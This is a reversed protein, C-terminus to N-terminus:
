SCANIKQCISQSAFWSLFILRETNIVLFIRKLLLYEVTCLTQANFNPNRSVLLSAISGYGNSFLPLCSCLKFIKIFYAIILARGKPKIVKVMSLILISASNLWKTVSSGSLMRVRRGRGTVVRLILLSLIRLCWQQTLLNPSDIVNCSPYPIASDGDSSYVREDLVLNPRHERREGRFTCKYFCLYRFLRM